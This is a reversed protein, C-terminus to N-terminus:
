DWNPLLFLKPKKAGDGHKRYYEKIYHLDKTEDETPMMEETIGVMKTKFDLYALQIPVGSKKAIYYFGKKWEVVASRTGEPTIAIRFDEGRERSEVIAQAVQDTKSTHRSRDVAIGGMKRFLVSLPFVFWEKKMLFRPNGHSYLAYYGLHAILFDWNSTHPALAIVCQHERPVRTPDIKWGLLWLASRCLSKRIGMWHRKHSAIFKQLCVCLYFTKCKRVSAKDMKKGKRCVKM